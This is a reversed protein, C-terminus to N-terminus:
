QPSKLCNVFVKGNFARRYSFKYGPFDKTFNKIGAVIPMSSSRSNSMKTMASGAPIEVSQGAKAEGLFEYKGGKLHRATTQKWVLQM